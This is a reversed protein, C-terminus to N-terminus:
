DYRMYLAAACISSTARETGVVAMLSRCCSAGIGTGNSDCDNDCPEIAGSTRSIGRVDMM